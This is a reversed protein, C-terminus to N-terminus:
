IMIREFGRTFNVLINEANSARNEFDRLEDWLNISCLIFPYFYIMFIRKGKKNGKDFFVVEKSVM